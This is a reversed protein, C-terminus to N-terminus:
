GGGRQAAAAAPLALKNRHFVLQWSSRETVPKLDRTADPFQWRGAPICCPLIGLCLAASGESNTHAQMTVVRSSGGPGQVPCAASAPTIFFMQSTWTFYTLLCSFLAVLFFLFPSVVVLCCKRTKLILLAPFHVYFGKEEEFAFYVNLYNKLFLGILLVQPLVTDPWSGATLLLRLATGVFIDCDCYRM